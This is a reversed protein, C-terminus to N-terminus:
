PVIMVVISEFSRTSWFPSRVGAKISEDRVGPCCDQDSPGSGVRRWGYGLLAGAEYSRSSGTSSIQADEGLRGVRRPQPPCRIRLAYRSSKAACRGFPPRSPLVLHQVPDLERRHRLHKRGQHAETASTHSRLCRRSWDSLRLQSNFTTLPNDICAAIRCCSVSCLSSQKM